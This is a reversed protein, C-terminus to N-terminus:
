GTRQAPVAGKGPPAASPGCAPMLGGPHRTRASLGPAQSRNSITM